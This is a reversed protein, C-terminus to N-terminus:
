QQAKLFAEHQRLKNLTAQAAPSEPPLNQLLSSHMAIYVEHNDNEQANLPIGQMLKKNQADAIVIDPDAQKDMEAQIQDAIDNTSDMIRTIVAPSVKVDPNFKAIIDLIQLAGAQKTIEDFANRAAISVKVKVRDIVGKQMQLESGEKSSFFKQKDTGYIKYMRLVIRTLRGMYKNLENLANGVNNKSGAQLAQIARGSADAGLSSGGMIDSKMGGEMDAQNMLWNLWEIDSQTVQLLTTQQPLEQSDSVEIVEIGLSNMLNNTAKHLQTGERVYVFRGGTKVINNIKKILNSIERDLVLMDAYWSRPYLQEPEYQPAYPTVPLFDLGKVVEKMLLNKSTSIVKCVHKKGDEGTYLYYGERILLTDSDPNEVLMSKKVESKTTETDASINAWDIANGFADHMYEHQLEDKPRTYTFLYKRIQTLKRASTDIFTDMPDHTVFSYVGENYQVMTWAIGRMIGFWIVEDMTTDYFSMDDEAEIDPDQGEYVFNLFERTLVEDENKTDQIFGTILFTPENNNLYNTIVRHQRKILNVFSEADKEKRIAGTTTKDGRKYSLM